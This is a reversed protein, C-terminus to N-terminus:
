EVAWLPLLFKSSKQLYDSFTKGACGSFLIQARVDRKGQGPPRTHIRKALCGHVTKTYFVENTLM